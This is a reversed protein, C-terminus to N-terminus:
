LYIYSCISVAVRKAKQWVTLRPPNEPPAVGIDKEM